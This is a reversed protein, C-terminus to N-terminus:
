GAARIHPVGHVPVGIFGVHHVNLNEGSQSQCVVIHRSHCVHLSNGANHGAILQVCGGYQVPLFKGGPKVAQRLVQGLVVVVIQVARYQQFAAPRFFVIFAYQSGTLYPLLFGRRHALADGHFLLIGFGSTQFLRLQRHHSQDFGGIIHGEGDTGSGHAVALQVQIGIYRLSVEILFSIGLNEGRHRVGFFQIGKFGLILLYHVLYLLAQFLQTLFSGDDASVFDLVVGPFLQFIGLLFQVVFLRFCFLM